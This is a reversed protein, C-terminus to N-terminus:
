IGRDHGIRGSHGSKPSAVLEQAHEIGAGLFNKATEDFAIQFGAFRDARALERAHEVLRQARGRDAIDHGIELFQTQDGRRM